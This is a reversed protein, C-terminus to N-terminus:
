IPIEITFTKRVPIPDGYPTEDSVIMCGTIDRMAGTERVKLMAKGNKVIISDGATTFYYCGSPGLDIKGISM